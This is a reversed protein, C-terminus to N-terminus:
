GEFMLTKLELPIEAVELEKYYINRHEIFGGNRKEVITKKPVSLQVRAGEGVSKPEIYLIKDTNVYYEVGDTRKLKIFKAM